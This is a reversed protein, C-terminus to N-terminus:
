DGLTRSRFDDFDIWDDQGGPTDATMLRAFAASGCRETLGRRLRADIAVFREVVEPDGYIGEIRIRDQEPELGPSGSRLLFRGRAVALAARCDGIDLYHLPKGSGIYRDRTGSPSFSYDFVSIKASSLVKALEDPSEVKYLLSVGKSFFVDYGSLPTPYNEHTLVESGPHVLKALRNLMRSNDIGSWEVNLEMEDSAVLRYRDLLARCFEIGEICGFLTSGLEIFRLGESPRAAADRVALLAVLKSLNVSADDQHHINERLLAEIEQEGADICAVTMDQYTLLDNLYRAAMFWDYSQQGVRFDWTLRQADVPDIAGFELFSFMSARM